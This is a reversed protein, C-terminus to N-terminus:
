KKVILPSDSTPWNGRLVPGQGHPMLLWGYKGYHGVRRSMAELRAPSSCFVVLDTVARYYPNAAAFVLDYDNLSYRKGELVLTKGSLSLGPARYKATLERGPNFVINAHRAAPPLDTPLEGNEIMSFLPMEMFDAAFSEVASRIEPSPGDMVFTPAQDGLVQSITPDIEAFALRRFLHCDPDVAISTVDPVDLEFEAGATNLFVIEERLGQATTLVVPIELPYAPEGQDLRFRVSEASFDVGTLELYPAGPQTLWQQEFAGLDRGSLEAFTTLFDGWSAEQFQHAAAVQRLGTLFLERGIMQDIMHFVMMSKGYGVARTAGSHRDRFETLPFDQEPNKVYAVYDKLVTRRYALAAAESELEKYHYDACYVTIGECWNGSDSDVFVSNGWWNHCIEHGFSTYPIFPLRLVQGGLLTYSPMGYGTPFWNEVTAFKAYPYPGIMEQYMAIYARTREMYTARLRADDEMFFTYSTIGDAAPEEHVFYRNAVLTLGDSPHATTWRTQLRGDVAERRTRRGQTVTEFGAPTDFLLDFIAMARENGALWESSAALYIGEDSITATIERGVNERSFVVGEVSEHFVGGYVLTLAGGQSGIGAAPLDVRQYSEDEDELLTIAIAKEVPNGDPGTIGTVTMGVGLRLHDLGVPVQLHDTITVTHQEIDFVVDAQHTIVPDDAALAITPVLLALALFASVPILRPLMPVQFM